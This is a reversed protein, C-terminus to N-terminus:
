LGQLQGGLQLSQPQVAEESSGSSNTDAIYKTVFVHPQCQAQGGGNQSVAVLRQM